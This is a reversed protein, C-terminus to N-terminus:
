DEIADYIIGKLAFETMFSYPMTQELVIVILDDKPSAWYHTSAAGGWGYEGVRGQPDWDSMETRISFGLGFGVGTRVNEGFKIDPVSKPLQDRTMMKVSKKSLVRTGQLQGGESIMMLFRMYDRATSVLGGGGSFLKPNKLYRSETPDDKLTLKGKSNSNYNAAFRNAKGKPVYFGTDNMDLPIFIREQFFQDLPQQSIVEVVRGLVDVSVSYMWDQGPEYVLPLQSLKTTMAALDTDRNLVDAKKYPQDVAPNGSSGYNLGSTHRMLDRVTIERKPTKMGDKSYVKVQKMEPLYKSIPADLELKGEDYLIMAATTTIAKSMSYFRLIADKTMPKNAEIDMLGHTSRHVIKGDKAILVIGGALRKDAVLKDMVKNIEALKTASMGVSEPSVSPIEAASASYPVSISLLSLLLYSTFRYRM